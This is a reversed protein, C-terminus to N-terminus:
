FHKVCVLTLAAETSVVIEHESGSAAPRDILVVQTPHNAVGPFSGPDPVHRRLHIAVAYASAVTGGCM